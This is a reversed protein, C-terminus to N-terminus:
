RGNDFRFAGHPKGAAALRKMLSKVVFRRIGTAEGERRGLSVPSSLLTAELRSAPTRLTADLTIRMRESRSPGESGLRQLSDQAGSSYTVAIVDIETRGM